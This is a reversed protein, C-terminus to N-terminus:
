QTIELKGISVETPLVVNAGLHDRLGGSPLVFGGATGDFVVGPATTAGPGMDLKITFLVAGAALTTDGVVSGTGAAKQSQAAVLVGRLPGSAPIVAKAATTATGASLATGPVLSSLTVKTTDLPLNFGTSYGTQATAGVVFDLVAQTSTSAANKVLRLKGGAPPDTYTLKFPGHMSTFVAPSGVLGTASAQFTYSVGAPALTGTASSTGDSATMASAPTISGSGSMAQWTIAVGSIPNGGSDTAIVVFPQGLAAGATGTQGDGSVKLLRTAPGQVTIFASGAPAPAASDTARLAWKGPTVFKANFMQQGGESGTFTYSAPLTATGDNSDFKVTGRYATALNGASDVVSLTFNVNDNPHVLSPVNDFRFAFSQTVVGGGGGGGGAMDRGGGGSSNGCGVMALALGCTLISRKM